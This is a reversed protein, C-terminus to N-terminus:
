LSLSATWHGQGAVYAKYVIVCIVAHLLISHHLVWIGPQLCRTFEWVPSFVDTTVPIVQDDNMRWGMELPCATM